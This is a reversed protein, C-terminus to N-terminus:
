TAQCCCRSSSVDIEVPHGGVIQIRALGTMNVWRRRKMSQMEEVIVSFRVIDVFNGSAVVAVIPNDAGHSERGQAESRLVGM